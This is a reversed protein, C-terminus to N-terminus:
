EDVEMRIPNAEPVGGLFFAKRRRRLVPILRVASIISCGSDATGKRSARIFMAWLLGDAAM